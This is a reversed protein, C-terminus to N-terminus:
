FTDCSHIFSHIFGVRVRAAGDMCASPEVQEKRKQEGDWSGALLRCRRGWGGPSLGAPQLCRAKGSGSEPWPLLQLHGHGDDGAPSARCPPPSSIGLPLKGPSLLSSSPGLAASILWSREWRVCIHKSMVRRKFLAVQADVGGGPEAQSRQAEEYYVDTCSQRNKVGPQQREQEGEQRM